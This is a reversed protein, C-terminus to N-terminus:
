IRRLVQRCLCRFSNKDAMRNEYHNVGFASGSPSTPATSIMECGTVVYLLVAGLLSQLRLSSPAM